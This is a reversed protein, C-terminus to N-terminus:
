IDPQRVLIRRGNDYGTGPEGSMEAENKTYLDSRMNYRPTLTSYVQGDPHQQQQHHHHHHHQQLQDHPSTGQHHDEERAEGGTRGEDLDVQQALTM